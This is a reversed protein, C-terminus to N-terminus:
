FRRVVDDGVKLPNVREDRVDFLETKYVVDPVPTIAPAVVLV